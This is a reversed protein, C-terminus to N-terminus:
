PKHSTMSPHWRMATLPALATLAFSLFLLISSASILLLMLQLVFPCMILPPVLPQHHSFSLFQNLSHAAPYQSPTWFTWPALLLAAHPSGHVLHSSLLWVLHNCAPLPPHSWPISTASLTAFNPIQSCLIAAPLTNRSNTTALTLASCPLNFQM